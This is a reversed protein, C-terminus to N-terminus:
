LPFMIKLVILFVQITSKFRRSVLRLNMLDNINDVQQLINILCKENIIELYNEISQNNNNDNEFSGTKM